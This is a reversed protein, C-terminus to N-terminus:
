KGKGKNVMKYGVFLLVIAGIGIAINKTTFFSKKEEVVPKTDVVPKDDKPPKTDKPKEKPKAGTDSVKKMTKDVETKPIWFRESIVGLSNVKRFEIDKWDDAFYGTKKDGKKARLNGKDDKWDKLFQFTAKKNAVGM